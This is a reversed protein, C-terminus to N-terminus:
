RITSLSSNNRFCASIKVFYRPLPLFGCDLTKRPDKAPLNLYIRKLMKEKNFLSKSGSSQANDGGSERAVTWCARLM